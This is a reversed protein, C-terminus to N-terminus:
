AQRSSRGAITPMRRRSRARRGYRARAPARSPRKWSASPLQLTDIPPMTVTLPDQSSMKMSRVKRGPNMRPHHHHPPGTPVATSFPRYTPSRHANPKSTRTPSEATRARPHRGYLEEATITRYGGISRRPYTPLSGGLMLDMRRGTESLRPPCTPPGLYRRAAKIERMKPPDSPQSPLHRPLKIPNPGLDAGVAM